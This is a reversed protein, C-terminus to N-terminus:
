PELRSVVDGNTIQPGGLLGLLDGDTLAVKEEDPDAMTAPSVLESRPVHGPGAGAEM